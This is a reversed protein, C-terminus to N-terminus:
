DKGGSILQLRPGATPIESFKSRHNRQSDQQEHFAWYAEFDPDHSNLWHTGKKQFSVEFGLM